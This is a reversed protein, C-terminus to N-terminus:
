LGGNKKAHCDCDGENAVEGNDMNAPEAGRASIAGCEVLEGRIMRMETGSQADDVSVFTGM